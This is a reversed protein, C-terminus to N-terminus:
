SRDSCVCHGWAVCMHLAHWRHCLYDDERVLLHCADASIGEDSIRLMSDKAVAFIVFKETSDVIQDVIFFDGPSCAEAFAIAGNEHHLRTSARPVATKPSLQLIRYHGCRASNKCQTFEGRICASCELQVGKRQPERPLPLRYAVPPVYAPVPATRARPGLSSAAPSPSSAAESFEGASSNPPWSGKKRLCPLKLKPQLCAPCKSHEGDVEVLSNCTAGSGRPRGRSKHM